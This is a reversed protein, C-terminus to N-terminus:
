LACGAQDKVTDFMQQRLESYELQMPHPLLFEGPDLLSMVQIADLVRKRYTESVKRSLSLNIETTDVNLEQALAAIKEMEKQQGDRLKDRKGAAVLVIENWKVHRVIASASLVKHNDKGTFNRSAWYDNYQNFTIHSDDDLSHMAERVDRVASLKGHLPRENIRNTYQAQLKLLPLYQNDSPLGQPKFGHLSIYHSLTLPADVVYENIGDKSPLLIGEQFIFSAIEDARTDSFDLRPRKRGVPPIFGNYLGGSNIYGSATVHSSYGFQNAVDTQNLTFDSFWFQFIADALEITEDNYGKNNSAPHRAVTLWLEKWQALTMQEMYERLVEPNYEHERERWYWFIIDVMNQYLENSGTRIENLLQDFSELDMPEDSFKARNIYVRPNM